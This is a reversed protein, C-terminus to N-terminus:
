CYWIGISNVNPMTWYRWMLKLKLYLIIYERWYKIVNICVQLWDTSACSGHCYSYSSTWPECFTASSEKQMSDSRGSCVNWKWTTPVISNLISSNFITINHALASALQKLVFGPFNDHGPATNSNILVTRFRHLLSNSSIFIILLIVTPNMDYGLLSISIDHFKM